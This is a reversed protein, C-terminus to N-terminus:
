YVLLLDWGVKNIDTTSIIESNSSERFAPSLSDLWISRGFRRSEEADQGSLSHQRCAADRNGPPAQHHPSRFHSKRQQRRGDSLIICGPSKNTRYPLRARGYIQKNSAATRLLNVM